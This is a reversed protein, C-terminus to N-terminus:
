EISYTVPGTQMLLSEGEERLLYIQFWYTTGPQPGDQWLESLAFTGNNDFRFFYVDQAGTQGIFSYQEGDTSAYIHANIFSGSGPNWKLGIARELPSDTDNGESLDTNHFLDDIVIASEAPLDDPNGIKSLLIDDGGILNYGMPGNQSIVVLRQEGAENNYIGWVRFQYQGNIDPNNWTFSRSAGHGTRGLYFFGGHGKKVYVHWDFIPEDGEHNWRISLRRNSLDDFDTAGTLPTNSDAEDYVEVGGQNPKESNDVQYEVPGTDMQVWGGDTKLVYVRFWYTVGDQPGDRWNDTLSFTRNGDFRFFYLDAAGTQGLFEYDTGNTSIFVHVNYYDGEGPNIKIGIARELPLDVDTSQSLDERHFMDDVVIASGVTVDDPNAIKKLKISDGDQLNYGMPGPQNLVILRDEQRDNKYLGWVRFQYQANVDPNTWVYTRNNGTGTRGLYFYGGDGRKVYVHWDYVPMEGSFNWRIALQRDEFPDYDTKGTMPQASYLTDFVEVQNEPIDVIAPGQTATFTPTSTATMTPTPTPTVTPTDTPMPTSTPM